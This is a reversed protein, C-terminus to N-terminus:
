RRRNRRSGLYVGAGGLIIALAIGSDILLPMLPSAPPASSGSSPATALVPLTRNASVRFANSDIVEVTINFRGVQTPACSLKSANESACGPPLGSYTWTYTGSGGSANAYISLVQGVVGYPPWFAIAVSLPPYVTVNVVPSTASHGSQTATVSVHFTGNTIPTCKLSSVNSTSCGTPLGSYVYTDNATANGGSVSANFWVNQGVDTSKRSAALHSALPAFVTVKAKNWSTANQGGYTDTHPELTVNVTVSYSGSASPDCTLVSVNASVCGPPLGFWTRNTQYSGSANGTWNESFTVSQGIYATLPRVSVSVNPALPPLLGPGLGGGNAATPRPVSGAQSPANTQAAVITGLVLIAVTVIVLAVLDIRNPSGSIAGSKEM